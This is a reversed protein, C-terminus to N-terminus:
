QYLGKVISWTSEEVTSITCAAGGGGGNLTFSGGAVCSSPYQPPDCHNMMPCYDEGPHLQYPVVELTINEGTPAGLLLIKGIRQVGQVGARCSSWAVVAGPASDWEKVSAFLPNGFALTTSADWVWSVNEENWSAPM